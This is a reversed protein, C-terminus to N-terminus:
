KIARQQCQASNAKFGTMRGIRQAWVQCTYEDAYVAVEVPEFRPVSDVAVYSASAPNTTNQGDLQPGGVLKMAMLVWVVHAM